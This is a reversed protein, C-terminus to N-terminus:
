KKKFIRQCNEGRSKRSEKLRGLTRRYIGNSNEEQKEEFHVYVGESMDELGFVGIMIMYFQVFILQFSYICLSSNM